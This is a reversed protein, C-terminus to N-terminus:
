VFDLSSSGLAKEIESKLEPLKSFIIDWIIHFEIERYGHSIINRLGIMKNWNESHHEEYFDKFNTRLRAIQEGIDQLRMLSADQANKDNQFSNLDKPTYTEIITITELIFSLHPNPSKKSM